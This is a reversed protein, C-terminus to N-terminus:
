RKKKLKNIVRQLLSEVEALRLLKAAPLLLMVFVVGCIGLRLGTSLLRSLSGTDVLLVPLAENTFYVGLAALGGAFSSRWLGDLLPAFSIMPLHRRLLPALCLAQLTIGMTSAFALGPAQWQQYCLVFGPVSLGVIFTSLLMPRLTDGTAYCARGWLAQISWAFLGLMYWFLLPATEAADQITFRGHAFLLAIIPQTLPLVLATVIISLVVATRTAKIVTQALEERKNEAFLKAFFPYSAVGGAQALFGVPVLLIKRAYNLQTIAGEDGVALYRAIWEDVTVLSVGIMLPLATKIFTRFGPHSFDFQFSFRLGLRWASWSPILFPGLLAGFLVGWAMGEIGVVGGFLAGGVIIALNYLVPALAAATFTGRAFLTATIIAGLVHFLQAPFVIRTLRILQPLKEKPMASFYWSLIPEAFLMGAIVGVSLVLALFTIIISFVRQGEDDQKNALHKAYIPVFTISLAGGALLYNLFDPLTFAALYVDTDSTAGFRWAVFQERLLGIVRSLLVSVGMILAAARM